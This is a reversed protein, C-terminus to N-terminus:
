ELKILEAEVQDDGKLQISNILYYSAEQKLYVRQKLDLNLFVYVSMRFLVKHIKTKNLISEYGEWYRPIFYRFTAQEDIAFPINGSFIQNNFPQTQTYILGDNISRHEINQIFFRNDIPKYEIEIENNENEKVEKDFMKFVNEQTASYTFSEVLDKEYDLNENDIVIQSDNFNDGEQIYKHKFRNHQAYNGYTYKEDKREIYYESLDQVSAELRQNITMFRVNRSANDYFLTLGYRHMILKIYDKASVKTLSDSFDIEQVILRELKFYFEKAELYQYVINEPNNIGFVQSIESETLVRIKVSVIDSPNIKIVTLYEDMDYNEIETETIINKHYLTNNIYFEVVVPSFVPLFFQSFFPTLKGKLEEWSISVKYYGKTLSFIYAGSPNTYAYLAGNLDVPQVPADFYADAQLPFRGSSVQDSDLRLIIPDAFSTQTESKKGYTLWTEIEIPLIYFFNIYSFIRQFIYEERISPILHNANFQNIDFDVRGNYDAILYKYYYNTWSAVITEPNKVHNAEQLDIQGLTVNDVAKWFDINGDIVSIKYNSQDVSKVEMWGDIILTVGNVNLRSKTKQYPINSRSGVLGLGKLVRTSNKDRRVNFSNTFNSNSKSVEGIDANQLTYSFRGDVHLTGNDTEITVM